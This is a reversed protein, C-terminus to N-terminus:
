IVILGETKNGYVMAEKALNRIGSVYAMLADVQHWNSPSKQLKIPVKQKLYRMYKKIMEKDKKYGFQGLALHDVLASPYTEIVTTGQKNLSANLKMGRATLGGLFMPSMAKLEKDCARYFYDNFKKPNKYVGPLSLPCDLMLLTIKQKGCFNLIFEDADAKKESQIIEIQGKENKFAIATTGALKSGYDIGVLRTNTDEM